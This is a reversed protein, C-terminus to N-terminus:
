ELCKTLYVCGEQGISNNLLSLDLSQLNTAKSVSEVIQKMGQDELRGNNLQM